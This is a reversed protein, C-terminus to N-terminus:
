ISLCPPLSIVPVLFLVSSMLILLVIVIFCFYSSLCSEPRNLLSFPSMECWFVHVHSFFTFRLLSVSNRRFAACFLAMLVWWILALNSLVCCLLLHLDHPSLSSVILWMILLHELSASFSYLVLPHALHDVSFQALFKFEVMRIFPM